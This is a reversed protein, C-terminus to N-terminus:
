IIFSIKRGKKNFYRPSIILLRFSITSLHTSNKSLSNSVMPFLPFCSILISTTRGSLYKPSSSTTSITIMTLLLLLEPLSSKGKLSNLYQPYKSYLFIWSSIVLIQFSFALLRFSLSFIDWRWLAHFIGLCQGISYLVYFVPKM